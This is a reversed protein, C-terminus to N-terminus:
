VLRAIDRHRRRPLRWWGYCDPSHIAYVPEGTELNMYHLYIDATGTEGCLAFKGSPDYAVTDAETNYINEDSGSGLTVSKFLKGAAIDYLEVIGGLSGTLALKGDPSVAIDWFRWDGKVNWINKGTDLDWLYMTDNDDTLARHGDLTYAVGRIWDNGPPFRGIEAGSGLALLRLTQGSAILASRGDPRYLSPAPASTSTTSRKGARWTM